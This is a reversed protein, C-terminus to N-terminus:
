PSFGYVVAVRQFFEALAHKLSPHTAHATLSRVGIFFVPLFIRFIEDDLQALIDFVSILVEAWVALHAESDQFWNLM